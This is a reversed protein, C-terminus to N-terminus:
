PLPSNIQVQKSWNCILNTKGSIVLQVWLDYSNPNNIGPNVYRWPNADAVKLPQYDQDPGGVAGLFIAALVGNNTMYGYQNGHNDSQSPHKLGTMFNRAVPADEGAGPKMCNLIGGVGFANQIASPAPPPQSSINASGDLTYYVGNNNTTGLLEFYLPSFMAQIFTAPNNPNYKPNSPPYFGYAAKYSDIATELQAMEAQTQKIVQTRKLSKLVPVTFAALVAIISIVVLLEVLTFANVIKSKRNVISVSFPAANQKEIPLRCDAVPLRTNTKM